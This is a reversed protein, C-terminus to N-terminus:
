VKKVLIGSVYKEQYNLIEDPLLYYKNIEPRKELYGPITRLYVAHNYLGVGQGHTIAGLDANRELKRKIAPIPYCILKMILQAASCSHFQIVHTLEHAIVALQKEETLNKFLASYHPEEAKELLSVKFKRKAPPLFISLLTPKTSYLMSNSNTLVFHIKVDELEPFFSLAKLISSKYKEPIRKNNITIYKSDRGM